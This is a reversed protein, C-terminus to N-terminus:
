TLKRKASMDVEKRLTETTAPTSAAPMPMRNIPTAPPGKGDPKKPTLIDKAAGLSLETVKKALGNFLEGWTKYSGSYAKFLAMQEQTVKGDEPLPKKGEYELIMNLMNQAKKNNDNVTPKPKAVFTEEPMSINEVKPKNVNIIAPDMVINSEALKSIVSDVTAAEKHFNGSDLQSAISILQEIIQVKNM